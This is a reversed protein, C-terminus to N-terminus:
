KKNLPLELTTRVGQSTNEINFFANGDYLLELRKKTNSIGFGSNDMNDEFRGSNIIEIQVVDSVLHCSVKIEGGEIIKSIGHKVGNEVLTQLMFPPIEYNLTEEDIDLSINLREEFRIKEISLYNEVLDLEEKITVTQRKGFLLNNRMISSLMTIANKANSPNEDVLARISNLSNFMFHPNMQAKFSNLEVETKAARLELNQIEEKRWNQLISVAFYILCWLLFLVSFNIVNLLFKARFFTALELAEGNMIDTIATNFTVLFFGMFISAILVRPVLLWNNSTKWGWRHVLLRFIHTIGIGMLFIMISLKVVQNLDSGVFPASLINGLVFLGWGIIQCLWYVLERNRM